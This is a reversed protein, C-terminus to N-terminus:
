HKVPGAYGPKFCSYSCDIVENSTVYLKCFFLHKDNWHECEKNLCIILVEKGDIVRIM